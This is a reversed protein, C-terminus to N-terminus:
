VCTFPGVGERKGRRTLTEGGGAAGSRPGGRRGEKEKYIM